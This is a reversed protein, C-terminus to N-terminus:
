MDQRVPDYGGKAYPHCRAIRRSAMGLGRWGHVKIADRAYQSCTPHYRCVGQPFVGKLVSHDPSLTKQYVLISSDIVRLLIRRM